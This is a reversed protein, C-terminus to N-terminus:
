GDLEGKLAALPDALDRALKRPERIAFVPHRGAPPVKLERQLHRVEALRFMGEEVADLRSVLNAALTTEREAAEGLIVDRHERVAALYRDLAERALWEAAPVAREAQEAQERAKPATPKAPPKGAETAERAVQRDATAAAEVAVKADEAKLRAADLRDLSEGFEKSAEQVPEPALSLGFAPLPTVSGIEPLKSPPPQNKMQEHVTPLPTM